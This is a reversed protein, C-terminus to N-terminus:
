ADPTEGGTGELANAAARRIRTASVGMHSAHHVVAGNHVVLVQPSEHRVGFREAIANSLTRASQVVVRYVDPDDPADLQGISMQAMSSIPCTRSHKFLVVPYRDAATLAARLDDDTAIDTM